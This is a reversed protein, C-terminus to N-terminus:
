KLSSPSLSSGNQKAELGVLEGRVLRLYSRERRLLEIQAQIHDLVCDMERLRITLGSPRRRVPQRSDDGIMGSEMTQFSDPVDNKWCEM